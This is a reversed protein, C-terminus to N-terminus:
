TDSPDLSSIITEIEQTIEGQRIIHMKSRLKEVREDLRKIANGIHDLRVRNEMTLSLALIAELSLLLSQQSFLEFFHWPTLSLQPPNSFDTTLPESVESSPTIIRTAISDPQEDHYSVSVRLIKDNLKNQLQKLFVLIREIVTGLEDSLKAGEIQIMDEGPLLDALRGGIVAISKDESLLSRAQRLMLTNFDRCFGRETGVILHCDHFTVPLSTFSNNFDAGIRSVLTLLNREHELRQGLKQLDMLAINRLATLIGGIDTYREITQSLVRRNTM